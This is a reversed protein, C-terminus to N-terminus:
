EAGSRAMMGGLARALELRDGYKLRHVLKRAVEDYRAVARAREFVPPEAIAAPSLLPIGLDVAFPRGLRECFPREIFAIESWCRACLTHPEGIAGGCGICTPPYVISLVANAFRGAARKPRPRRREIPEAGVVNDSIKGTM